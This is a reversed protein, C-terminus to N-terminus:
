NAAEPADAHMLRVYSQIAERVEPSVTTFELGCAGRGRVQRVWRAIARMAVVKGTVPLAFRVEVESGDPVPADTIVFLGGESVDEIRGDVNTAEFSIRAPTVYPARPFRRRRAGAPVAPPPMPPAPEEVPELEDRSLAITPAIVPHPEAAHEARTGAVARFAGLLATRGRGVGGAIMLEEAFELADAHRQAPDEALSRELTRALREPVDSRREVIKPYAKKMLIAMVIEQYGGTFPTEGTLSEYLTVAAAYLDCRHDIVDKALLQEPAMYDFTGLLEGARTLKKAAAEGLDDAHVRAIGFDILKVVEEGIENRALMINSPKLDRHVVGRAHAFALAELIQRGLHVADEVDIRRKSALIGDLTRGELMEMALYPGATDCLGADLVEVVAPHRVITLARAERLLRQKIDDQVQYGSHLTKVAVTRGTYVQTAEFVAGMGGRAIERKLIYRRDVVDGIQSDRIDVLSTRGGM